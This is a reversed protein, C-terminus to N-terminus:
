QLHYKYYPSSFLTLHSGELPRVGIIIIIIIHLLLLRQTLKSAELDRSVSRCNPYRIHRLTAHRPNLFHLGIGALFSDEVRSQCVSAHTACETRLNCVYAFNMFHDVKRKREILTWPNM